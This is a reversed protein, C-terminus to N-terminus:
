NNAISRPRSYSVSIVGPLDGCRHAWEWQTGDPVTVNCTRAADNRGTVELGLRELALVREAIAVTHRFRVTIAGPGCAAV